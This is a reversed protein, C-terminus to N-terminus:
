IIGLKSTITKLTPTTQNNEIFSTLSDIQIWAVQSIEDKDYAIPTHQSVFAQYVKMVEHETDDHWFATHNYVLPAKIGLEEQMERAAAEEYSDPYTVHGGVSIAWCDPYTDKQASRKQLLLQQKMEDLVAITVSRHIKKSGSHAESRTISGLVKDNEDVWYFLESQDDLPM